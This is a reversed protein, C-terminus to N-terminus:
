GITAAYMLGIGLASFCPLRRAPSTGGSPHPPPPPPEAGESANPRSNSDRRLNLKEPPEYAETPKAVAFRRRGEGITGALGSRTRAESSGAKRCPAFRLGPWLFQNRRILVFMPWVRKPPIGVPQIDPKQRAAFRFHQGAPAEHRTTKPSYRIRARIRGALDSNSGDRFPEGKGRRGRGAM